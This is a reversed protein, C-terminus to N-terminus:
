AALPTSTIRVYDVQLTCTDFDPSGAWGNPIWAGLWLQGNDPVIGRGQAQAQLSGDVYFALSGNFTDTPPLWTLSYLHYKGDNQNAGTNRYQALECPADVGCKAQKVSRDFWM